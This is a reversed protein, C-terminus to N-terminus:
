SELPAATPLSDRPCPQPAGLISFVLSLKLYKKKSACTWIRPSIFSCFKADKIAVKMKLADLIIM